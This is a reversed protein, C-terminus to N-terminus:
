LTTGLRTGFVRRANETTRQGVFEMTDGRARAVGEAVARVYAPENRKGRHPVPALYPGDTEVLLRDPPYATLPVAASWRQFTIMGSFSFYAGIAMGADFVGTGSSFSHLIVTAASGALAAAM